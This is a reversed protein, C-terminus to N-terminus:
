GANSVRDHRRGRLRASQDSPVEVFRVLDAFRIWHRAPLPDLAGCHKWSSSGLQALRAARVLGAPDAGAEVRFLVVGASESTPVWGARRLLLDRAVEVQMGADRLVRAMPEVREPPPAAEVPLRVPAERGALKSLERVPAGVLDERFRWLCGLRTRALLFLPTPESGTDRLELRGQLNAPFRSEVIVAACDLEAGDLESKV